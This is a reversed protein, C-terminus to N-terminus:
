GCLSEMGVHLPTWGKPSTDEVSADRREFLKMVGQINGERCFDFILSNEPVARVMSVNFKWGATPSWQLNAETGYRLGIRSLWSAPYFIFSTIVELQGTTISSKEAAKLTSTRVWISGLVVGISSKQHCIKSLSLRPQAKPTVRTANTTPGSRKLQPKENESIPVKRIDYDDSDYSGAHITDFTTVQKLSSEM